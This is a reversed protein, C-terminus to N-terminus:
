QGIAFLHHEARVYMMGDSIAPTAMLLEGMNNTAILKFQSGANVVFIDGDESPLYIKGDAAIPSASFGGGAHPIRERYIEKGSTLEYCNFNGNNQLTFLYGQYIIPTPMYPGRRTKSWAVHENSTRKEPLTIDGKAGTKIAFIPAEPGRGSCVIILNESFIPTPATIKSSGGLRWLEKGTAPDYGYIFNSSNTVLEIREDSEVITPTGWSPLEDRLTEWVTKGTKINCAMLFSENQTDVQVIVMDQYIIPSSAPGWEYEPADYAGCDIKGLDKKWILNGTLDYVFLGESGFLVAVYRGDTAPTSNAYTSKIHRKDKPIGETATREWLIQGTKKDLCYLCWRHHSRDNSADGDGYLGHRFSVDKRSSIATTVFLKEQWIIPSSHALGPIPTKWKINKGSTGDWTEPLNQRDVAGSAHEGRFSPWIGKDQIMEYTKQDSALAPGSDKQDNQNSCTVIIFPIFIIVFKLSFPFQRLLKNSINSNYKM